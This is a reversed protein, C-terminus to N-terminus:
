CHCFVMLYSIRKVSLFCSFADSSPILTPLLPNLLVVIRGVKVM